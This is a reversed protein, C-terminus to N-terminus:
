CRIDVYLFDIEKFAARPSCLNYLFNMGLAHTPQSTVIAEYGVLAFRRYDNSINKGKKAIHKSMVKAERYFIKFVAASAM